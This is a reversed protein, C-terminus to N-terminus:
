LPPGNNLCRLVSPRVKAVTAKAAQFIVRFNLQPGFLYM